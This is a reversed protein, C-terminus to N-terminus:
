SRFNRRLEKKTEINKKFHGMEECIIDMNERLNNLMNNIIAKLSKGALKLLKGIQLDAEILQKEQNQIVNEEKKM